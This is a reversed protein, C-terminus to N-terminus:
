QWEFYFKFALGHTGITMALLAAMRLGRPIEDWNAGLLTIVALGIFLYALSILLRYGTTHSQIADYDVDYLRCISQAQEISILNKDVWSSVEKALDKKLLRILRM